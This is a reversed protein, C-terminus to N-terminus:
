FGGPLYGILPENLVLRAEQVCRGIKKSFSQM